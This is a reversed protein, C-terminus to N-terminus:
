LAVVKRPASFESTNGRPGTATATITKGVAVKALTKTFSINGSSDTTVRKQGLFKKGEDTGSPNSFLQVRFTKNPTSNLKGVVTTKTASTKASSLIPFNQLTNPGADADGPDNPPTNGGGLIIGLSDNSFIRNRLIRNGNANNPDPGAAQVQVGGSANFAITNSGGVSGDGVINKAVGSISVGSFVNGLDKAGTRDTGIRNGLVKNGSGFGSIGVGSFDNNSIINGAGPTSGGVTSNKSEGSILVGSGDNGMDDNTFNDTGDKDTGIYNGQVTTNDGRGIEVGSRENGSILNRSAPTGDGIAHSGGGSSSFDFIDVGSGGNGLDQTGSRDTGIFNGEVRVDLGGTISIGDSSFRNIALGRIVSNSASRIDLGFADGAASGDLEVKIVADDGKALALTNPSAGSQSYGDITVQDTIVPLGSNPRISTNFNPLNFNITDAGPTDNAEQIGARLTCEFVSSSPNADCVGDNPDLDAGDGASNVFYTTSAHAPVAPLGVALAAMLAAAVLVKTSWMTENTKSQTMM